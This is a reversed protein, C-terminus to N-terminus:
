SRGEGWYAAAAAHAPLGEAIAFTAVPEALREAATQDVRQYTTWRVFDLTSLGSYVHMSGGGTPLVHNAGTMYDGFAVSSSEGLFVTGANRIQGLAADSDAVALLVHEPAWANALAIADALSRVTLLVGRAGLADLIITRRAASAVQARIATDVAPAIAGGVLLAGVAADPDHEAQAILERAITDPDAEDDAIILLESPGAPADIGVVGAVQRKAEAVYANGPGVIRDVRPVTKTGYAMAAIAGAGGIAFVRDVKALAAAALIAQAPVGSEREPPTCLIVESVGAVRAPIAAMLVSSPYAARGGPAYIGVRELPDPRRGVTIGPETSVETVVPRFAEHACRINRAAREMARRLEIPLGALATSCVAHPIELPTPVSTDFELMLEELARDGGTRVRDIIAATRERVADSRSRPGSERNFWAARDAASWEDISGRFRLRVPDLDKETSM